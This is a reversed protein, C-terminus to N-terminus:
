IASRVQGRRDGCWAMSTAGLLRSGQRSGENRLDCKAGAGKSRRMLGEGDRGVSEERTEERKDSQVQRKQKQKRGRERAALGEESRMEYQGKRDYCWAM